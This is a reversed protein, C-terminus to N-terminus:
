NLPRALHVTQWVRCRQAAADYQECWRPKGTKGDILEIPGAPSTAFAAYARESRPMYRACIDPM